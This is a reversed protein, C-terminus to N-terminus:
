PTTPQNLWANPDVPLKYDLARNIDDESMNHGKAWETFAMRGMPSKMDIGYLPNSAKEAALTDLGAQRDTRANSAQERQLDMTEKKWALEQDQQAVQRLNEKSLLRKDEGAGISSAIAGLPGQTSSGMNAGFGILFEGLNHRKDPTDSGLKEAQRELWSLQTRSMNANEALGASPVASTPAPATVSAVTPQGRVAQGGQDQQDQVFKAVGPDSLALGIRTGEARRDPHMPPIVPPAAMPTTANGIGGLIDNASTPGAGYPLGQPHKWYPAHVVPPAMPTNTFPPWAENPSAANAFDYKDALAKQQAIAEESPPAPHQMATVWPQEPGPIAPGIGASPPPAIGTAGPVLDLSPDHASPKYQQMFEQLLAKDDATTPPVRSQIISLVRDLEPGTLQTTM